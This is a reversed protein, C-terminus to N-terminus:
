KDTKCDTTRDRLEIRNPTRVSSDKLERQMPKEQTKAPRLPAHPFTHTSSCCTNKRPTPQQEELQTKRQTQNATRKPPPTKRTEKAHLTQTLTASPSKANPTQQEERRPCSQTAAQNDSGYPTWDLEKMEVKAYAGLAIAGSSTTHTGSAQSLAIASDKRLEDREV